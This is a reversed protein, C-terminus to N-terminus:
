TNAGSESRKLYDEVIKRIVKSKTVKGVCLKEIARKTEPTFKVPICESLKEDDFQINM